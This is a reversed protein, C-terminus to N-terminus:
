QVYNGKEEERNLGDLVNQFKILYLRKGSVIKTIDIGELDKLM